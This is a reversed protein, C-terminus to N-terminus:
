LNGPRSALRGKRNSIRKLLGLPRDNRAYRPIGAETVLNQTPISRSRLSAHQARRVAGSLM